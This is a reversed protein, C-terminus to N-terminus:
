EPPSNVPLTQAAIYRCSRHHLHLVKSLSATL